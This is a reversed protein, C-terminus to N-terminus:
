FLTDIEANTAEVLDTKSWYGSLDVSTSGIKEFSSSSAVWIYEDYVNPSTGGNSILYIVGNTGTAPLSTVVEFSISTIGSIMDDVTSKTYYNTLDSVAKTIYAADNTFASVKTPTGTLSAYPFSSVSAVGDSDITINTGIKIGGLTTSSATPLDYQSPIDPKDTLDNYSGTFAVTKLDAFYKSVKGFITSLKEGTVINARSSAQTFSVTVDQGNGTKDLKGSIDQHSTLYGSDNTLESTKSPILTKVKELFYSLGDLSVYKAM